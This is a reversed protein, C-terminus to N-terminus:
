QPLALAARILDRPHDFEDRTSLVYVQRGQFWVALHQRLGNAQYVDQGGLRYALPAAGTLQVLFSKRFRDSRYDSKPNFRSVQLTAQVVDGKRLSYLSTAEIYTLPVGAMQHSMDEPHVNLGLLNTPLGPTALKAVKTGAVAAPKPSNGCGALLTAAVLLGSALISRSRTRTM